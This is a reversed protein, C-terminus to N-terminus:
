NIEVPLVALSNTKLLNGTITISQLIFFFTDKQEWYWTHVYLKQDSKNSQYPTLIYNICANKKRSFICKWVSERFRETVLLQSPCLPTFHNKSLSNERKKKSYPSKGFDFGDTFVSIIKHRCWKEWFLLSNKELIEADELLLVM